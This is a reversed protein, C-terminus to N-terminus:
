ASKRRDDAAQYRKAAAIAQRKLGYTDIIFDRHKAAKVAWQGQLEGHEVQEVIYDM